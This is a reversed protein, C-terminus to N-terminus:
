QRSPFYLKWSRSTKPSCVFLNSGWQVGRSWTLHRTTSQLSYIHRLTTSLSRNSNEKWRRNRNAPNFSTFLPIGLVWFTLYTLDAWTSRIGKPIMFHLIAQNKPYIGLYFFPAKYYKLSKAIDTWTTSWCKASRNTSTNKSSKSQHYNLPKREKCLSRNKSSILTTNSM